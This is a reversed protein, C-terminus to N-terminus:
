EARSIRKLAEIEDFLVYNKVLKLVAKSKDTKFLKSLKKIYRKENKNIRLYLFGEKRNKKRM